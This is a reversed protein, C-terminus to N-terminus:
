KYRIIKKERKQVSCYAMIGPVIQKVIQKIYGWLLSKKKWKLNYQVNLMNDEKNCLAVLRNSIGDKDRDAVVLNVKTFIYGNRKIRLMQEYDAKIKYRCDFPFKLLLEKRTFLSQHCLAMGEELFEADHNAIYGRNETLRILTHGYIVDSNDWVKSRFADSLVMHNYFSDGANMFIVWVGECVSIATNMADYIGMDKSVIHKLLIGRKQFLPKYSNIIENTKDTSDADKIVYEFQNYDQKLVSKMTEEIKLEANFCVTVVSIKENM